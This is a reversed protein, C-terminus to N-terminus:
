ECPEESHHRLFKYCDYVINNRM